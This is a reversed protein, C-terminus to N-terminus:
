CAPFGCRATTRARATHRTVPCRARWPWRGPKAPTSCATDVGTAIVAAGRLHGFRSVATKPDQDLRNRVDDM